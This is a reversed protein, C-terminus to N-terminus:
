VVFVLFCHSSINLTSFPFYQWCFSDKLFSPCILICGCLCFLLSELVLLGQRFSVCFPTRWALHFSVTCQSSAVHLFLSFGWSTHSLPSLVPRLVLPGGTGNVTPWMGPNHALDRTTVVCQHKQGERGEKGERYFYIKFFFDLFCFPFLFAINFTVVCSFICPRACIVGRKHCFWLCTIRCCLM